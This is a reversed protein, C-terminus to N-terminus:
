SVNHDYLDYLLSAVTYSVATAAAEIEPSLTETMGMFAPQIGILAIECTLVATLYRGLMMLPMTHTSASFGNAAQWDLWRITGPLEDMQAADVMLVLDPAFRYIIGTCNEPAHAAEVVLLNEDAFPRLAQAVAVGVGDDGRLIQGIGM